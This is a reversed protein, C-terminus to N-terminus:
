SANQAKVSFTHSAQALPGSYSVPSSSYQFDGTDSGASLAAQSEGWLYSTSQADLTYGGIATATAGTENKVWSLLLTNTPVSIPASMVAASAVNPGTIASYIPPGTIDSGSVAFIHVVLPAPNTLTITVRHTTSTAPANVYYIASLLTYSDGAWTTPGTLVSWSNGVNDNLASISVPLGGAM